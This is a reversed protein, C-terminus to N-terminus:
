VGGTSRKKKTPLGAPLDAEVEVEVDGAIEGVDVDTVDIELFRSELFERVAQELEESSLKLTCKM